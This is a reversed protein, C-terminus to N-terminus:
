TLKLRATKRCFGYLARRHVEYLSVTKGCGMCRARRTNGHLEIVRDDPIGSEQHLGDVNQTIVAELLSMEHFEAIAMHAPNPKAKM